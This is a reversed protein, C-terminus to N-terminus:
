GEVETTLCLSLKIVDYAVAKLGASYPHPDCSGALAESCATVMTDRIALELLKHSPPAQANQVGTNSFDSGSLVTKLGM